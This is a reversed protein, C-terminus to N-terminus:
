VAGGRVVRAVAECADGVVEAADPRAQGRARSAMELLRSRDETLQELMGQLEGEELREQPLLRAAGVRELFLANATQHDDVAAPFPVLVSAVGAAALEAVTLAGARCVALDAWSWAEAMDEIFVELRADVGLARWRATSDELWPGGCQHRVEVRGPALAAVAAPVHENLARAGQSGGVILLRVPGHRDALRQEPPPLKMVAQRVPNGVTEDRVSEPFSGPFGSLVRAAFRALVRNTLGAIANQEHIVLPLRMLAAALGGPGSAFGGMGLVVAPRRRRLVRAAQWIARLLRFPMLLWGRLGKGRLARVTICDLEIARGPVLRAELGSDTGLWSVTWGRASLVEAVALGPFVHGGTGGAMIVAHRAMM